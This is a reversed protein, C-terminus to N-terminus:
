ATANSDILYRGVAFGLDVAVGTEVIDLLAAENEDSFARGWNSQVFRDRYEGGPDTTVLLLEDEILEEVKLDPLAEGTTSLM